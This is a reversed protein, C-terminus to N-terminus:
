TTPTSSRQSEAEAQPPAGAPFMTPLWGAVIHQGDSAWIMQMYDATRAAAGELGFQSNRFTPKVLEPFAGDGTFVITCGDFSCNIFSHGDLVVREDRFNRDEYKM